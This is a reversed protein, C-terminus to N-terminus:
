TGHGVTGSAPEPEAAKRERRQSMRSDLWNRGAILLGVLDDVDSALADRLYLQM